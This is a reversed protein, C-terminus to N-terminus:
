LLDYRDQELLVVEHGLGQMALHYAVSAKSFFPFKVPIFSINAHVLRYFINVEWLVVAM